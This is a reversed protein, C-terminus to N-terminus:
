RLMVMPQKWTKFVVANTSLVFLQLEFDVFTSCLKVFNVFFFHLVMTMTLLTRLLLFYSFLKPYTWLTPTREPNLWFLIHFLYNHLRLLIYHLMRMHLMIHTLLERTTLVWAIIRLRNQEDPLYYYWSVWIM